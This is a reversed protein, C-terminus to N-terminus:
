MLKIMLNNVDTTFSIPDQSALIPVTSSIGQIIENTEDKSDVFAITEAVDHNLGSQALRLCDIEKHLAELVQSADEGIEDQVQEVKRIEQVM